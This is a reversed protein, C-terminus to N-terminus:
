EDREELAVLFAHLRNARVLRPALADLIERADDHYRAVLDTVAATLEDTFATRRAAYSGARAGGIGRHFISLSIDNKSGPPM